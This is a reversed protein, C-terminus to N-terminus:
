LSLLLAWGRAVVGQGGAQSGERGWVTRRPHIDNVQEQGGQQDAEAEESGVAM